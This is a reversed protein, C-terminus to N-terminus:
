GPSRRLTLRRGRLSAGALGVAALAAVGMGGYAGVPVPTPSAPADVALNGYFPNGPQWGAYATDGKTAFHFQFYVTATADAGTLTVQYDVTSGTNGQSLQCQGPSVRSTYPKTSYCLHSESIGQPVSGHVVVVSSGDAATTRTLTASGVTVADSGAKISSSVTTSSDAYAVAPWALLGVAVLAILSRKM